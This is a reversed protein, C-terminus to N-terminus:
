PRAPGDRRLEPRSITAAHGLGRAIVRRQAVAAEGGAVGFAAQRGDFLFRQPGVGLAAAPRDGPQDLRAVNRRAAAQIQQVHHGVALDAEAEGVDGVVGLDDFQDGAAAM